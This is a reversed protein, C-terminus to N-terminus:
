AAGWHPRSLLNNHLSSRTREEGCASCRALDDHVARLRGKECRWSLCPCSGEETVTAPFGNLGDLVKDIPRRAAYQNQNQRGEDERRPNSDNTMM